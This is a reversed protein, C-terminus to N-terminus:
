VTKPDRVLGEIVSQVVRDLSELELGLMGMAWGDKGKWNARQMGLIGVIDEVAQYEGAMMDAKRQMLYEDASVRERKLRSCPPFGLRDLATDVADAIQVQTPAFSSIYLTRNATLDEEHNTVAQVHQHLMAVM